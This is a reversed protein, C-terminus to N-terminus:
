EQQANNKASLEATIKLARPADEKPMWLEVFQLKNSQCFDENALLKNLESKTKVVYKDFEGDKAGFFTPADTYNWRFGTM